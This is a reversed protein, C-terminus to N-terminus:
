LAARARERVRQEADHNAVHELTSRLEPRRALWRTLLEVSRYRIHADPARTAGRTLAAVLEDTPARTQAAEIASLRVQTAPDSDLRKALIGDVTSDSMSHLAILAAARIEERRDDLYPKVAPLAGEYGSNAIARLVTVLSLRGRVLKLRAVIFEGLEKARATEGEERLRRSYSGLGYLARRSFPDDILIAKLAKVAHPTPKSARALANIARNRLKEDLEKAKMLSVLAVQADPTSATALADMLVVAAPSKDQIRRVAQAVTGPERRFLASLAVFLQSNERLRTQEGAAEQRGDDVDQAGRQELARQELRAVIADFDLEGIRADDLSNVSAASATPDAAAIRTARALLADLNQFRNRATEVRLARLAIAVSSHLPLQAGQLTVQDNLEIVAPRGDDDLRIEGASAVVHPQVPVKVPGSMGPPAPLSSPGLLGLYRQKRKRLRKTAADLEYEAVYQGTTDYEYATYRTLNSASRAIQLTAAIQRYTSTTMASQAPDVYIDRFRGGELTVFAGTKRLEEAIQDLERQGEAVRSVIAADGLSLHLMVSEATVRVPTASLTGTLDFDFAKAAKDFAIATTLKLAYDYRKGLVWGPTRPDLASEATASAATASAAALPQAQVPAASKDSRVSGGSCALLVGAVLAGIALARAHKM